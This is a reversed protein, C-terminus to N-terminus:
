GDLRLGLFYGWPLRMSVGGCFVDRV